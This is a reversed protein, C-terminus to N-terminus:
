LIKQNEVNELPPMDKGQGGMHSGKNTSMTRYKLPYQQWYQRITLSFTM